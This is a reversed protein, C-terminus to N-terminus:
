GSGAELRGVHGGREITGLPEDHGVREIRDVQERQDFQHAALLGCGVRGFARMFGTTM